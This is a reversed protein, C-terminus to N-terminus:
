IEKIYQFEMLKFNRKTYLNNMSVPHLNQMHGMTLKSAGKEKAKKTFEKILEIAMKSRRNEPSVYWIIEQCFIDKKDFISSIIVGAIVGEVRGKEGVLIIENKILKKATEELTKEDFSFGYDKLYGDYFSYVLELIRPIDKLIAERIM